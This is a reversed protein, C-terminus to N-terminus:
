INENYTHYDTLREFKDDVTVRYGFTTQVANESFLHRYKVVGYVVIMHGMVDKGDGCVLFEKKFPGEPRLYHPVPDQVANDFNPIKPLPNSPTVVLLCMRKEIIKAPTKGQNSCICSFRACTQYHIEGGRERSSGETLIAGVGPVKELDVMVWARQSAIQANVSNRLIKTQRRMSVAQRAIVRLTGRAVLIGWVAVVLLLWNALVPSLLKECWTPKNAESNTSEEKKPSSSRSLPIAGEPAPKPPQSSAHKEDNQNPNPKDAQKPVSQNLSVALLGIVLWARLTRINYWAFIGQCARIIPTCCEAYPACL